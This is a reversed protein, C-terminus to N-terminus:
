LSDGASYSKIAKHGLVNWYQSPSMGFASRKIEVNEVSFVEGQEIDQKAVLYKRAVELNALERKTPSKIRPQLALELNRIANVLLRFEEPSASAAHDPGSLGKDLTLHKEICVAGLAVAACCAEIGLSHDSYGVNLKYAQRLQGIADLNLDRYQAPYDTVCHLLTVRDSLQEIKESSFYHRKLWQYSEPMEKEEELYGFALAAMADEVESLTAMGTSVVLKAGTKAHEILFPLNTLDGSGIKLVSLHLEDMITLLSESDFCTTLFDVGAARCERDLEVFDDITLELRGLMEAQTTTSNDNEDQYVAKKASSTVLRETKFTQFKVADAGCDKAVHILKKALEVSGNHNVGVEAIIYTHM